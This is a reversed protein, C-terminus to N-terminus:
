QLAAEGRYRGGQSAVESIFDVESVFHVESSSTSNRQVCPTSPSPEMFSTTTILSFDRREM